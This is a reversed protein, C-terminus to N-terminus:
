NKSRWFLVLRYSCSPNLGIALGESMGSIFESVGYGIVGM